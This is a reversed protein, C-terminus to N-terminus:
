ANVALRAQGRTSRTKRQRRPHCSEDDSIIVYIPLFLDRSM